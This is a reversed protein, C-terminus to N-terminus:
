VVTARAGYGEAGPFAASSSAATTRTYNLNDTATFTDAPTRSAIHVRTISDVVTGIAETIEEIVTRSEFAVRLVTRRLYILIKNQSM